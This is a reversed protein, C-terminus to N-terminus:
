SNIFIDLIKRLIFEIYNIHLGSIALIHALNSNQFIEQMNDEIYNKNGLLMAKLISAEEKSYIEDLFISFKQNSNNLYGLFSKKFDSKSIIESNIIGYINKLKLYERYDFGKYNRQGEPQKYEGHINLIDGYKYEEKSDTYLILKTNKFKKDNNIYIVKLIYKNTYEKEQKSSVIKGIVQVEKINM